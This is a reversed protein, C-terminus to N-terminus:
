CNFNLTFPYDLGCVSLATFVTAPLYFGDSFDKLTRSTFAPLPKRKDPTKDKIVESFFLLLFLYVERTLKNNFFRNSM